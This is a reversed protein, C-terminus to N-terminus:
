SGSTNVGSGSVNQERRKDEQEPFYYWMWAIFINLIVNMFICLYFLIAPAGGIKVNYTFGPNIMEIFMFLFTLGYVIALGVWFIPNIGKFM